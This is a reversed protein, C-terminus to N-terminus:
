LPLVGRFQKSKYPSPRFATKQVPRIIWVSASNLSKLSRDSCSKYKIWEASFKQFHFLVFFSAEKPGNNPDLENNIIFILFSFRPGPRCGRRFKLGKKPM